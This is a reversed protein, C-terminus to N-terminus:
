RRELNECDDTETLVALAAFGPAQVRASEGHARIGAVVKQAERDSKIRAANDPHSALICLAACGQVQVGASETHRQMGAIVVKIGGLRGIKAIEEEMEGSDECTSWLKVDDDFCAM